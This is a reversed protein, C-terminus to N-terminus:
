DHQKDPHQIAPIHEERFPSLNYLDRCHEQMVKVEQKCYRAIVESFSENALWHASWTRTPLFGRTIKHEGQAGPEFWDIGEKIALEIGQYFCTEFHLSDYERKNGWYRGFLTDNSRFFLAGAVYEDGDRAMALLARRGLRAGVQTFFPLTLTPIGAKKDFTDVYFRYFTEWLETSINPGEIIELKLGQESVLRRERRINKRKKSSMRGLYDEFDHYNNNHWHYQCGLRMILGRSQLVDTDEECTFLWHMGSYENRSTFEIAADVLLNRLQTPNAQEPAVLLRKGPAPTYPVGCVVKPYYRGGAREYASAWSWDFVFEGYSNTKVYLPSAAILKGQQRITIHCPHWGFEESLCGNTELAHLFAHSLFPDDNGGLHDWEEPSVHDLSDLYGLEVNNADM